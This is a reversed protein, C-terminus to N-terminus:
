GDAHTLVGEVDIPPRLAGSRRRAILEKLNDMVEAYIALQRAFALDKDASADRVVEEIDEPSMFASAATTLEGLKLITGAEDRALSAACVDNYYAPAYDRKHEIAERFRDRALDFYGLQMAACGLNSSVVSLFRDLSMRELNSPASPVRLRRSEIAAKAFDM